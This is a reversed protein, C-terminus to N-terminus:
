YAYHKVQTSGYGGRYKQQENLWKVIPGAKEFEQVKVLALLAYATAELTLYHRGRVPWHTDDSSNVM